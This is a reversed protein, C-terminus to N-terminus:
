QVKIPQSINIEDKEQSSAQQEQISQIISDKEKLLKIWDPLEKTDKSTIASRLATVSSQLEKQRRLNIKLGAQSLLMQSTQIFKEELALLDLGYNLAPEIQRFEEATEANDALEQIKYLNNENLAALENISEQKEVYYKHWEVKNVNGEKEKEELEVHLNNSALGKLQKFIDAVSIPSFDHNLFELNSIQDKLYVYSSYNQKWLQEDFAILPSVCFTEQNINDIWYTGFAKDHVQDWGAPLERYLVAKKVKKNFQFTRQNVKWTITQVRSHKQTKIDQFNFSENRDFLYHKVCFLHKVPFRRRQGQIVLSLKM